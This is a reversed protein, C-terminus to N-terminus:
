RASSRLRAILEQLHAIEVPKGLHHDFGAEVARREDEPRAYGSLAVLIPARGHEARIHRAVEYGDLEPLGIDCFVIDPRWSRAKAVGERGDHAVAVEQGSLELVEKLSQACDLNDEVVLVRRRVLTAAKPPEIALPIEAALPLWVTFASGRGLGDSRADARGGHLEVLGKVLALGLGLGGQARHLSHDGQRFAEFVHPLTEADIGIGDDVVRIAASSGDREVAVEVHGHANTFKAANQLLNGIVQTIRAGDGDVCQTRGDLRLTLDIDRAAFVAQHDEVARRVLDGVDVPRHHLHIKGRAIRTVDLLDDVLRTMHETQREIVAQARRAQESGPPAHQLIYTSNRIPALPNRLEHSLMGLFEDKRRDAERLADEMQKRETIDVNVGVMRLPKGDADKLVRGRGAVWRITGDARVIRWEAEFAGTDLSERLRREANPLDEPHVLAAWQEYKSEYGGPPLGYLAELEPSWVSKDTQPYFEFSGVGAAQQALRLREGSERLADEARKRDTIDLAFSIGDRRGDDFAAAGILIPVRSGDKRLWEKEYTRHAGTERVEQRAEEDRPWWERPTMKAWDIRGATLDERTYGTMALFRDNCDTVQGDIKWLIMGLLDSDYLRRMRAEARKRETIDVGYVRVVGENALYAFQQLFSHGRVTVTRSSESANGERLERVLEEWDSLWPHAGGKERLDPFLRLAAPNAYKVRGQEDAEIIPIPNKEPFSALYDQRATAAKRETIDRNSEFVRDVEDDGRVVHLRAWVAVENGDKTTHVLEGEWQRQKRLLDEFERRSSPLATKLLDHSVCGRVEEATFGYLEEAGRSWLEIGSGFSWVLIADQSRKLLKSYRQAEEVMRKRETFDRTVKAFGRLRGSEDRIATILANAWFRTGDKRVRWGEDEARGERVATELAKRPSEAAVDEPSYFFSFPQGVIEDARYGKLRQAGSNWTAVKGDPDLMFIAYDKVGDVLLRFREESERLAAEARMAARAEEPRDAAHPHVEHATILLGTGGEMPVPEISGEWWTERGNVVQAHRPVEVRHGARTRAHMALAMDRTAPFLDIIGEEETFGTSQLWEANARVITGDPAVLCLGAGVKDFLLDTLTRGPTNTIPL